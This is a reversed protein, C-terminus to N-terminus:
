EELTKRKNKDPQLFIIGVNRFLKREQREIGVGALEDVIWQMRGKMEEFTPRPQKTKPAIAIDVLAGELLEERAKKVKHAADAESVHWTMQIEKRETKSARRKAWSPRSAERAAKAAAQADARSVVRVHPPNVDSSVLEVYHTRDKVRKLIDKLPEPPRVGNEDVIQVIEAKINEGRPPRSQKIKEQLIAPTNTFARAQTRFSARRM